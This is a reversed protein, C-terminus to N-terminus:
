GEWELIFVPHQEIIRMNNKSKTIHNERAYKEADDYTTFDMSKNIKKVRPRGGKKGNERSSVAKKETRISGLAAAAKSIQNEKKLEKM